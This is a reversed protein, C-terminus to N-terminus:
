ETGFGNTLGREYELNVLYPGSIGFTVSKEAAYASAAVLLVSLAAMLIILVCTYNKM